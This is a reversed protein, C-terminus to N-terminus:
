AYGIFICEVGREGLKKCKPEPVKVIVRCRWVKLYSLNSKREYLLEYPTMTNGKMLVRNLIHCATLNVEGWIGESLGSYSLMSNVMEQLTRNKKEAVGNQQPTYAM